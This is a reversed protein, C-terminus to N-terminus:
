CGAKGEAGPGMWEQINQIACHHSINKLIQGVGISATPLCVARM